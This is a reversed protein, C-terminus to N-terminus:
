TEEKRKTSEEIADHHQLRIADVRRDSKMHHHIHPHYQIPLYILKRNKLFSPSLSSMLISVDDGDCRVDSQAIADLFLNTDIFFADDVNVDIVSFDESSKIKGM